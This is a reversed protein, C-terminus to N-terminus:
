IPACAQHLTSACQICDTATELCWLPRIPVWLLVKLTLPDDLQRSTSSLYLERNIARCITDIPTRGTGIVVDFKTIAAAAVSSRKGLQTIKFVRSGDVGGGRSSSYHKSATFIWTARRASHSHSNAVSSYSFLTCVYIYLNLVYIGVDTM